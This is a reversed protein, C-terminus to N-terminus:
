RLVMRVADGIVVYGTTTWCSLKVQNSGSAFEWAGLSNWTGGSTQQNKVVTQSGGSYYVIYPATASRNTGASWWAYVEYRGPVPLNFTWTAPDSTAQTQRFRYNPGYKDKAITGTSWNASASFGADSNDVILDVPQLCMFRVADAMVVKGSEGTGNGVKVYGNTGTAFPKSSVLVNWRGGNATQNISVTQSGGNWYVTHPAATSRNSGQSHWAYVDYDGAMTINPRWIATATESPATTAYRYDSGYKDTALTGTYWTGAFTASPNDVIFELNGWTGAAYRQDVAQQFATFLDRSDGSPFGHDKWYEIAWNNWGGSAQQNCDYVFWTMGIIDRNGPTQNWANVDAFADRVFQASNQEDNDDITYRGFETIWIPKNGFGKQDIIRIQTRYQDQFESLTWGYAHLAFGDVENPSLNDLTQALYDKGAMWRVGEVPGYSPGALLVIHQGPPGVSASQHIANRVSRYVQAYQAPQIKRDPWLSGEACLINPENGVIWIHSQNKLVNVVNDVVVSPWSSYNPDSPAPVTDNWTYDVRTILSVNWGYLTSYLDTFYSPGWWYDSHTLVTETDWASYTPVDLLSRPATDVGIGQTHGWWHIGYLKNADAGLGANGCLCVFAAILWLSFVMKLFKIRYM